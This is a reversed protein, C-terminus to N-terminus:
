RGRAGRHRRGRARPPSRVRRARAPSRATGDFKAAMTRRVTCYRDLLAGITGNRPSTACARPRRELRSAERKRWREAVDACSRGIEAARGAKSWHMGETASSNRTERFSPAGASRLSRQVVRASRSHWTGDSNRRKSRPKAAAEENVRASSAPVSELSPFEDGPAEVSVPVIRSCRQIASRAWAAIDLDVPAGSGSIPRSM